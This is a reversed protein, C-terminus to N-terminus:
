FASRRCRQKPKSSGPDLCRDVRKRGGRRIRYGIYKGVSRAASIRVELRTGAKLRKDSLSGFAVLGPTKRGRAVKSQPKCVNRRGRKCTVRVRAGPSVNRVEMSDVIIGKRTGIFFLSPEGAILSFAEPNKDCNDDLRNGPIPKAGPHVTNRSDDCDPAVCPAKADSASVVCRYGDGDRDFELLQDCNQDVQDNVLEPAGPHVNAANDDCDAPPNVGDGDADPPPCGLPPDGKVDPCKDIRDEIGDNDRDPCGTNTEEGTATLGRETPCEDITDPRWDGDTNKPSFTLRVNTQGGPANAAGNPCAVFPDGTGCFGATEIVLVNGRQVQQPALRETETLGPLPGHWGNICDVNLINSFSLVDRRTEPPDPVRAWALVDYGAVVEVYVTGEVAPLFRIWATKGGRYADAGGCGTQDTGGDVNSQEPNGDKDTQYSYFRTDFYGTEKFWQPPTGPQKLGNVPIENGFADLDNLTGHDFADFNHNAIAPVASAGAVAGAALLLASARHVSRWIKTPVRVGNGM